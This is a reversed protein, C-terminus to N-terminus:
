NIKGKEIPQITLKVDYIKELLRIKEKLPPLESEDCNQEIWDSTIFYIAKSMSNTELLAMAKNLAEMIFSIEDSDPSIIIKCQTKSKGELNSQQQYTLMKLSKYAQSLNTVNDLKLEFRRRYMEMYRNVTRHTFPLNQDVWPGFEGHKLDEKQQTLLMGIQLIKKFCLRSHELVLELNVNIENHLNIIAQTRDKEDVKIETPTSEVVVPTLIKQKEGM